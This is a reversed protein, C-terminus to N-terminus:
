DTRQLLLLAPPRGTSQGPSVGRGDAASSRADNANHGSQTCKSILTFTIHRATANWAFRPRRRIM